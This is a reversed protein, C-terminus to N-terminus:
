SKYEGYQSCPIIVLICVEELDKKDALKHRFKSKIAKMNKRVELVKSVDPEANMLTELNEQAFCNALKVRIMQQVYGFVGCVRQLITTFKQLSTGVKM